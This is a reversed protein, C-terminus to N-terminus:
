VLSMPSHDPTILAADSELCEAARDLNGASLASTFARVAAEPNGLRAGKVGLRTPLDVIAAQKNPM